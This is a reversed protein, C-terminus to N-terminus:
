HTGLSTTIRMPLSHRDRDRAMSAYMFSSATIGVLGALSSWSLLWFEVAKLVANISTRLTAPKSASVGITSSLMGFIHAVVEKSYCRSFKELITHVEFLAFTETTWEIRDYRVRPADDGDHV